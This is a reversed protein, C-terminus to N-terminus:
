RLGQPFDRSLLALHFGTILIKAASSLDGTELQIYHADILSDVSIFHFLFYLLGNECWQISALGLGCIMM